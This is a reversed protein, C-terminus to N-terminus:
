FDWYNDMKKITILSMLITSVSEDDTLCRVDNTNFCKSDTTFVVSTDGYSECVDVTHIDNSKINLIKTGPNM